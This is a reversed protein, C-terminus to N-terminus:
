RKRVAVNDILRTKGLKRRSWCGCRATAERSTSRRWRRPTARRSITSRSAPRSSRARRRRRAGDRDARGGRDPRRLGEARSVADARGRARRRSLYVNRSSMALGDRRACPRRASSRSRCISIARWAPSSGSSSTTRRASCRSTPRRVPHVAQRGRDRRRRLFGAPVHRGARGQGAGEPVIRTAFGEPYMMTSRRAGLGSRRRERWRRSIPRRVHPSLQRFGREPRVARSQRLDVGRRPRRAAARLRVLAPPGDHLAGMTPVLAITEGAERWRRSPAACRRCRKRVVRLRHAMRPM